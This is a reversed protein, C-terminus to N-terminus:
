PLPWNGEPVIIGPRMSKGCGTLDVIRPADQKLTFTTVLNEYQRFEEAYELGKQSKWRWRLWLKPLSDNCRFSDTDLTWYQKFTTGDVAVVFRPSQYEWYVEHGTPIAPSTLLKNGRLYFQYFPGTANVAKRAQWDSAEMSGLIRTGTTRDFMTGPVIGLVQNPDITALEEAGTATAHGEVTAVQWFKRTLLDDLFEQLLEGIQAVQPDPSSAVGTPVPLGQARCFGQVIAKVDM